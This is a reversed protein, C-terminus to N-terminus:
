VQFYNCFPLTKQTLFSIREICIIKLMFFRPKMSKNTTTDKYHVRKFIFLFLRYLNPYLTTNARGTGNIEIKRDFLDNLTM